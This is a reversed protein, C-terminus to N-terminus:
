EETIKVFEAKVFGQLNAETLVGYWDIEGKSSPIEEYISLRSGDPILTIIESMRSPRERLNLAGNIVTGYKVPESVSAFIAPKAEFEDFKNKTRM